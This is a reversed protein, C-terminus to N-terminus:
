VNLFRGVESMRIDKMLIDFFLIMNMWRGSCGGNGFKMKYKILIKMDEKAVLKEKLENMKVENFQVVYAYCLLGMTAVILLHAENGDDIFSRPSIVMESFIDVNGLELIPRTNQFFLSQDPYSPDGIYGVTIFKDSGYYEDDKFEEINTYGEFHSSDHEQILKKLPLKFFSKKTKKQKRKIVKQNM